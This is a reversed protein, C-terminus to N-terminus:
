SGPRCGRGPDIVDALKPMDTKKEDCVLVTHGKNRKEKQMRQQVLAFAFMAAGLWYSTGFTKQRTAMAALGFKEFSFAV